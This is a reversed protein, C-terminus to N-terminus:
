NWLFLSWSISCNRHLSIKTHMWNCRVERSVWIEYWGLLYCLHSFLAMFFGGELETRILQGVILRVSNMSKQYACAWHSWAPGHVDSWRHAPHLPAPVARGDVYLGQDVLRDFNVRSIEQFTELNKYSGELSVTHSLSLFMPFYGKSLVLM